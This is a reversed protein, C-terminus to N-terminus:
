KWSELFNLYRITLFLLISDISAPANTCCISKVYKSRFLLLMALKSLSINGGYETRSSMFFLPLSVCTNRCRFFLGIKHSAISLQQIVCVFLFKLTFECQWWSSFSQSLLPLNCYFPDETKSVSYTENWIKTDKINFKEKKQDKSFVDSAVFSPWVVSNTVVDDTAAVSVPKWNPFKLFFGCAVNVLFTGLLPFHTM